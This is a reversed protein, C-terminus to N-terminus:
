RPVPTIPEMDTYGAPAEFDIARHWAHLILTGDPNMPCPTFALTFAEWWGPENPEEHVFTKRLDPWTHVHDAPCDHATSPTEDDPLYQINAWLASSPVSPRPSPQDSPSGASCLGVQVTTIIRYSPLFHDLLGSSPWITFTAPPEGKWPFQAHSVLVKCPQFSSALAKINQEPFRFPTRLTHNLPIFPIRLVPSQELPASQLIYIDKWVRASCADQMSDRLGLFVLRADPNPYVGVAYTPGWQDAHPPVPRLVLFIPLGNQDRWCFDALTWSGFEVVPIHALVGHPTISLSVVRGSHLPSPQEDQICVFTTTLASCKPPM